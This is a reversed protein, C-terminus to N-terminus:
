SYEVEIVAPDIDLMSALEEVAEVEDQAALAMDAPEPLGEWAYCGTWEDGGGVVKAFLLKQDEM